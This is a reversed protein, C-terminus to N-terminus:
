FLLIIFFYPAPFSPLEMPIPPLIDLPLFFSM